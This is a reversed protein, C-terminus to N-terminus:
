REGPSLPSRDGTEADLRALLEHIRTNVRIKESELAERFTASGMEWMGRNQWWEQLQRTYVQLGRLEESPTM